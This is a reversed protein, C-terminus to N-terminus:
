IGEDKKIEESAQKIDVLLSLFQDELWQTYPKDYGRICAKRYLAKLEEIGLVFEHKTSGM